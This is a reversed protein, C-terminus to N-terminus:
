CVCVCVVYLLWTRQLLPSAATAKVPSLPALQAMIAEIGERNQQSNEARCTELLQQKLKMRKLDDPSSPPADSSSVTSLSTQIGNVLNEWLAFPGRNPTSTAFAAAANASCLACVLVIIAIVLTLSTHFGLFPYRGNHHHLLHNM